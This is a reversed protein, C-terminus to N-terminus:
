HMQSETWFTYEQAQASCKKQYFIAKFTNM